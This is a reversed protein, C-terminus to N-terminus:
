RRTAAGPGAFEQLAILVVVAVLFGAALWIRTKARAANWGGHLYAGVFGAGIAFYAAPIFGRVMMRRAGTGRPLRAVDLAVYGPANWCAAAVAAAALLLLIWHGRGAASMAERVQRRARRRERRTPAPRVAPVGARLNVHRPARPESPGPDAPSPADTPSM